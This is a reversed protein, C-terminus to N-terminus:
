RQWLPEVWEKYFLYFWLECEEFDILGRPKYGDNNKAKLDAGHLLLLRATSITGRFM